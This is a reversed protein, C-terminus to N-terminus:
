FVQAACLTLENSLQQVEKKNALVMKVNSYLFILLDYLKILHKM